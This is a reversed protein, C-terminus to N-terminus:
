RGAPLRTVSALRPSGSTGPTSRQLVAFRAERGGPVRATQVRASQTRGDAWQVRVARTGEAAGALVFTVSGTQHTTVFTRTAGPPLCSGAGGGAATVFLCSGVGGTRLSARYAEVRWPGADSGGSAVVARTSVLPPVPTEGGVLPAWLSHTAVSPVATVLFLTLVLTPRSLRRLLGPRPERERAAQLRSRLETLEPIQESM